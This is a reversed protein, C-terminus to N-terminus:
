GISKHIVHCKNVQFSNSSILFHGHDVLVFFIANKHENIYRKISNDNTDSCIKLFIFVYESLGHFDRYSLTNQDQRANKEQLLIRIDCPCTAQWSMWFQM